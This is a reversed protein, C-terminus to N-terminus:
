SPMKRYFPHDALDLMAHDGRSDGYAYLTYGERPGLLEVLRIVKEEGWCNNGQLNGTVIGYQDVEMKSCVLDDFGMHKSWPELYADISASVLVCRHKQRRHWDLRKLAKVYVLKKLIDSKSFAEGLECLQSMPMGGFFRKLVREKIEQRSVLNLLYGILGPSLKSLKRLAPGTGASYILFPLLTDRSTITGDFDFAAVVQKQPQIQATM